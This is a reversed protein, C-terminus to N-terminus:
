REGLVNVWETRAADRSELPPSGYLTGFDAAVREWSFRSRAIEQARRGLARAQDPHDLLEIIASGIQEADNDVLRGSVGNEIMEPIGGTRSAVVAKGAHMAELISIPCADQLSIHCHIDALGLPLSLDEIFTGPITVAGALGLRHRAERVRDLLPGRGILIMRVDPFRQRVKVLAQMLRLTGEVKAPYLFNSVQLIVPGGRHGMSAGFAIVAPDSKERVRVTAAGPVVRVVDGSPVPAALLELKSVSDGAAVTVASCQSLLWGLVVRKWRARRQVPDLHSTFVVRVARRSMRRYGVAAALLAPHDHAHVVDPRARWLQWLQQLAILLQSVRRGAAGRESKPAILQLELGRHQELAATLGLLFSGLGTGPGLPFSLLTAVRIPAAHERSARNERPTSPADLRTM